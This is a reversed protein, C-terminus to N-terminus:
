KEGNREWPPVSGFHDVLFDIFARIKPSLNRKDAYLAVIDSQEDVYDPLLRVLRGARLDERVLFTSLRAIGLGALTAHYVADADNAEFNGDIREPVPGPIGSFDWRNFRAVTSLRLCNHDDLDAPTKPAGARDIYAPAACIIRRNIALKRAVVTPDDIQESFRIAVDISEEALDVIRDTLELSLRLDPYSELFEPLIPLIHAKAFAVTAAIRLQGQPRGGMSVVLAEADSVSAAVDACRDYFARGEHTLSIGQHVRNLLRVGLRDELYGIQKSVASPSHNMSRAAGSFSGNEVVKAFLVMQSSLEM